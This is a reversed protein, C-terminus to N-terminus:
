FTVSKHQNLKEHSDRKEIDEVKASLRQVRFLLYVITIFAWIPFLSM